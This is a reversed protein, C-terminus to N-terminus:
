RRPRRPRRERSALKPKRQMRWSVRRELRRQERATTVSSRSGASCSGTASSTKRPTDGARRNPGEDVRRERRLARRPATPAPDGLPDQDGRRVAVFTQRQHQHKGPRPPVGGYELRPRNGRSRHRARAPQLRPASVGSAATGAPSHGHQPTSTTDLLGVLAATRGGAPRVKHALDADLPSQVHAGDWRSDSLRPGIEVRDSRTRRRSGRRGAPRPRSAM